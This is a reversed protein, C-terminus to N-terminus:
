SSTNQPSDAPTEDKVLPQSAFSSAKSKNIAVYFLAFAKRREEAKCNHKCPLSDAQVRPLFIEDVLTQSALNYSANCLINKEREM